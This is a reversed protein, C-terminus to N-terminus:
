GGVIMSVCEGRDRSQGLINKIGGTGFAEWIGAAKNRLIMGRYEAGVYVDFRRTGGTRGKDTEIVTTKKATTMTEDKRKRTRRTEVDLIYAVDYAIDM